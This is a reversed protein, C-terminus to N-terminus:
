GREVESSDTSPLPIFRKLKGTASRQLGDVVGLFIEPRRLGAGELSRVLEGQLHDLDVPGGAVLSIDAGRATQRVQYEVVNRDHGLLSHFALPHVRLGKDYTFGDDLRGQPAALCRLTSGCPCQETLITVKDTIEFRILPLVPNFLNTAYLKASRAGPEVPNGSSDVPEIIVSDDNLHLRGGEGCGVAIFGMESCRYAEFITAHWTSEIDQRIEPLLPETAASIQRPAISLRGARAEVVLLRLASPYGVLLYPRIRNLEAVIDPLPLTIPLSHFEYAGPPRFTRQLAASLHRVSEAAVSVAVIPSPPPNTAYWRAVARRTAMWATLRADWGYVYVGRHGSSGGSVVAHYEDMLYADDTLGSLYQEILELSLRPDTLIDDYNAMLDAKTIVPLDALDEERFTTLTL